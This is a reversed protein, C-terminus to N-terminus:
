AARRRKSLRWTARRAELREADTAYRRGRGNFVRLPSLRCRGAESEARRFAAPCDVCPTQGGGRVASERWLALEDPTMCDYFTM